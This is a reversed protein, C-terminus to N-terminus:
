LQGSVVGNEDDPEREFFTLVTDRYTRSNAVRLGPIDKEAQERTHEWVMIGNQGLLHCSSVMSLVPVAEMAYPPDIFILDFMEGDDSLGRLTQRWDGKIVRTREETKLAAVNARIARIAPQAADSLVAFEAGRSLAELGLAGSGAFLDLVRAGEVRGFLMSFLSEKTRGLTPRTDQGEPATLRRQKYRGAIIHM